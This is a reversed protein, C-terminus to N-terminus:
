FQGNSHWEITLVFSLVLLKVEDQSRVRLEVALAQPGSQANEDSAIEIKLAETTGGRSEVLVICADVCECSSEFGDVSHAELGFKSLPYLYTGGQDALVFGLDITDVVETALNVGPYASATEARCGAFASLLMAIAVGANSFLLKHAQSSTLKANGAGLAFALHISTSRNTM